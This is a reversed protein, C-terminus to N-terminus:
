VCANYNTLRITLLQDICKNLELNMEVDFQRDTIVIKKKSIDIVWM